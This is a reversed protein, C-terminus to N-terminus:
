YNDNYHWWIIDIYFHDNITSQGLSCNKNERVGGEEVEVTLFIYVCGQVQGVFFIRGLYNKCEQLGWLKLSEIFIHNLFNNAWREQHHRM